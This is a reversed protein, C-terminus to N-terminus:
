VANRHNQATLNLMLRHGQPIRGLRQNAIVRKEALKQRRIDDAIASARRHLAVRRSHNGSLRDAISAIVKDARNAARSFINQTM